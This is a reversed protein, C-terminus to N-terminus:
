DGIKMNKTCCLISLLHCGSSVFYFYFSLLSDWLCLSFISFWTQLMVQLIHPISDVVEGSLFCFVKFPFYSSKLNCNEIEKFSKGQLMSLGLILIRLIRTSKLYSRFHFILTLLLLEFIFYIINIMLLSRHFYFIDLFICSVKSFHIM